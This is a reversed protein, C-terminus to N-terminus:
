RRIKQITEVATGWASPTGVGNLVGDAGTKQNNSGWAFPEGYFDQTAQIAAVTQASINTARAVPAAISTLSPLANTASRYAAVTADATEGAWTGFRTSEDKLIRPGATKIVGPLNRLTQATKAAGGVIGPTHAAARVAGNVGRSVVAAGPVMGLADGGLTMSTAWFDGSMPGKKLNAWTAPDAAHTAFAGASLLTSAAMLPVFAAGGTGIILATLALGAGVMALTNGINGWGDFAGKLAGTLKSWRSPKHPAMNDAKDLASAVSDADAEHRSQLEHAQRLVSEYAGRANDFDQNAQNVARTAADLRAQMAALQDDSFHQGALKLDPNNLAQGSAESARDRREAAAKADGDLRKAQEQFGVLDARWRSLHEHAKGMSDRAKTLRKPLQDSLDKRFAAAAEGKWVESNNNGVAVITNHAEDLATRAKAVMDCMHAVTDVVGPAPNFGLSPYPNPVNV